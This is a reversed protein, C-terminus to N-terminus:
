DRLPEPIGRGSFPSVPLPCDLWFRQFPAGLQDLLQLPASPAHASISLFSLTIGDQELRALAQRRRATPTGGTELIIAYLRRGTWFGVDVTVYDTPLVPRHQNLPPPESLQPCFLHIRPLPMLASFCWHDREVLGDLNGTKLDLTAAHEAVHARIAAFYLTIFMERPRAWDGCLSKLHQELFALQLDAHALDRAIPPRTFPHAITNLRLAEHSSAEIVVVPAGPRELDDTQGSALATLVQPRVAASGYPLVRHRLTALKAPPMPEVMTELRDPQPPPGLAQAM